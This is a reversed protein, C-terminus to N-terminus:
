HAHDGHDMPPMTTATTVVGPRTTSTVGRRTTTTAAGHDMGPMSTSSGGGHEPDSHDDHCPDGAAPPQGTGKLCMYAGSFVDYRDEWGPIIWAHAMFTSGPLGFNSVGGKAKCQADTLENGVTKGNADHCLALHTHWWDNGGPFGDPPQGNAGNAMWSLGALPATDAEGDYQLFVPANPPPGFSTVGRVIDHTGLGVVFQVAQGLGAKKADARTPYNKVKAIIQDFQDALKTCDDWSLDGKTLGRYADNALGDEGAEAHDMHGGLGESHCFWPLTGATKGAAAEAKYSVTQLTKGSAPPKTTTTTTTTTRRPRLGPWSCSTAVVLAGACAAVGITRASLAGRHWSRNV